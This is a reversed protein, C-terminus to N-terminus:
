GKIRSLEDAIKRLQAAYVSLKDNILYAEETPTITASPKLRMYYDPYKCNFNLIKRDRLKRRVRATSERGETNGEITVIHDPHVEIIVGVHDLNGTSDYDHGWNYFIIDGAKMDDEPEYWYDNGKMRNYTQTCSITGVEKAGEPIDAHSIISMVTEACWDLSMHLNLENRSKNEYSLATELINM